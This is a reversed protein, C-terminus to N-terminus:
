DSRSRTRPRRFCRVVVVCAALEPRCPSVACCAPPPRCRTTNSHGYAPTDSRGAVGESFVVGAGLARNTVTNGVQLLLLLLLLHLLWARAHRLAVPWHSHLFAHIATALWIASFLLLALGDV